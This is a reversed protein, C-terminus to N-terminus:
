SISQRTKVDFITEFTNFKENPTLFRSLYPRHPSVLNGLEKRGEYRLEAIM